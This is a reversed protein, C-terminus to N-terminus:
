YNVLHGGTVIRFARVWRNLWGMQFALSTVRREVRQEKSREGSEVIGGARQPFGAMLRGARPGSAGVGPGMGAGAGVEIAGDFLRKWSNIRVHISITRSWAEAVGAAGAASALSSVLLDRM